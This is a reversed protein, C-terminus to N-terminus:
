PLCISEYCHVEAEQKINHENQIKSVVDEIGGPKPGLMRNICGGSGLYFGLMFVVGYSLIRKIAM